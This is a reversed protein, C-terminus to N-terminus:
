DGSLIIGAAGSVAWHDKPLNKDLVFKPTCASEIIQMAPSSSKPFMTKLIEMDDEDSVTITDPPVGFTEIYLIMADELMTLSFDGPTKGLERFTLKKM